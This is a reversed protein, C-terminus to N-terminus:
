PLRQPEDRLARSLLRGSALPHTRCKTKASLMASPAGLGLPHPRANFGRRGRWRHGASESHISSQPAAPLGLTPKFSGPNPKAAFTWGLGLRKGNRHRKWSERMIAARDFAAPTVM